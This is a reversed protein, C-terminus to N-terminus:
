LSLSGKSSLVGHYFVDFQPRRLGHYIRRNSKDYKGDEDYKGQQVAYGAINALESAFMFADMLCPRAIRDTVLATLVEAENLLPTIGARLFTCCSRGGM